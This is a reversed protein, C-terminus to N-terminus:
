GEGDLCQYRCMKVRGRPPDLSLSPLAAAIEAKAKESGKCKAYWCDAVLTWHSAAASDEPRLTTESAPHEVIFGGFSNPKSAVITSSEHHSPRAIEQDHNMATM